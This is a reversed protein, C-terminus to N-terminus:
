KKQTKWIEMRAHTHWDFVKIGEKPLDRLEWHEVLWQYIDVDSQIYQIKQLTRKILNELLGKWQASSIDKKKTVKPEVGWLGRHENVEELNPDQLRTLYAQEAKLRDRVNVLLVRTGECSLEYPSYGMGLCSGVIYGHGPRNYGHLVMKPRDMKQIDTPLAANLDLAVKVSRNRDIEEKSPNLKINRFCCACTGTNDRTRPAAPEHPEMGLVQSVQELYPTEKKLWTLVLYTRLCKELSRVNGAHRSADYRNPLVTFTRGAPDTYRYGPCGVWMNFSLQFFLNKWGSKDQISSLNQVYTRGAEPTEPLADVQLKSLRIHEFKTVREDEDNFGTDTSVLAVIKEVKWGELLNLM